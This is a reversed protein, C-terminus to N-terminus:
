EGEAKLSDKEMDLSLRFKMSMKFRATKVDETNNFSIINSKKVLKPKHIKM